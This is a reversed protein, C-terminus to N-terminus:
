LYFNSNELVTLSHVQWIFGAQQFIADEAVGDDDDVNILFNSQDLSM